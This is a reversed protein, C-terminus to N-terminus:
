YLLFSFLFYYNVRILLEGTSVLRSTNSKGSPVKNDSKTAGEKESKRRGYGNSSKPQGVQQLNM